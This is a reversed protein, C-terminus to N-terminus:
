VDKLIIVCKRQKKTPPMKFETNTTNEEEYSNVTEPIPITADCQLFINNATSVPPTTVTPIQETTKKSNSQPPFVEPNAKNPTAMLKAPTTEQLDSPNGAVCTFTREGSKEWKEITSVIYQNQQHNNSEPHAASTAYAFLEREIDEVTLPTYSYKTTVTKTDGNYQVVEQIKQPRAEYVKQNILNAIAQSDHGGKQTYKSPKIELHERPVVGLDITTHSVTSTGVQDNAKEKAIEIEVQEKEASDAMDSREIIGASESPSANAETDVTKWTCKAPDNHSNPMIHSDGVFRQDAPISHDGFARDVQVAKQNVKKYFIPFLKKHLKQPKYPNTYKPLNQKKIEERVLQTSIQNCKNKEEKTLGKTAPFM